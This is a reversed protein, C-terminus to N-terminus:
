GAASAAREASRETRTSEITANLVEEAVLTYARSVPHDPDALLLPRGGEPPGQAATRAPVYQPYVHLGLNDAFETVSAAVASGNRTDTYKTILFGALRLAPNLKDTVRTMHGLLLQIGRLTMYEASVPVIVSHAATLAMTTLIGLSPPTDVVVIDYDETVPELRLRLQQEPNLEQRLAAEEVMLEINSPALDFGHRTRLVVKRLPLPDPKGPGPERLVDRITRNLEDANIGIANACGGQPDLDVLLVRQELKGWAAALSVATTTKGVGGKQNAVVVVHPGRSAAPAEGLFRALESAKIRYQQGVKVAALRGAKINNIVTNHHVKLMDAVDSVTLYTDM